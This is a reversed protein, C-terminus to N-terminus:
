SDRSLIAQYGSQPLYHWGHAILWPIALRGKGTWGDGSKPSDDIVILGRGSLLPAVAEAEALCHEAHGPQECDLSDLYAVDIPKTRKRLYAVSDSEIISALLGVQERAFACHEPDNDVSELWGDDLGKLYHGFLWTSYGASWDDPARICGTEVIRPGTFRRGIERFLWDFTRDRDAEGTSTTARLKAVVSELEASEPFGYRTLPVLPLPSVNVVVRAQYESVREIGSPILEHLAKAVGPTAWWGFDDLIIRGGAVMRPVFYCLAAVTSQYTDADLHVFRYRAGDDATFPFIGRHITANSGQLFQKVDAFATDRFDGAGHEGFEDAEPLGEFTDFLHLTAGRASHAILKASGGRYVGLEALDGPLHNTAQVEDRIVALKNPSLLSRGATIPPLCARDVAALVEKPSIAWLAACSRDCDATHPAQYSCGACALPGTLCEVRPYPSFIRSAPTAGSLVITPTGLLGALHSLGSDLGVVCAANLLVGTVLDAPRNILRECRFRETRSAEWHLVVVRYGAKLLLSELTLWAHLPYERSPQTSFPCLAVVGAYSAGLSRIREPDRLQPTVPQTVGVNACYRELRTRAFRAKLEESYGLNLQTGGPVAQESHERAQLTLSDYGTFLTVFPLAAKGVRYVIHRDPNAESVAAVAFLGLIGDGLGTGGHDFVLTDPEVEYGSCTPGCGRKSCAILGCPKEPHDCPHEGKVPKGIHICTEPAPGDVMMYFGPEVEVRHRIM